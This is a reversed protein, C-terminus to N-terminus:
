LPSTMWPTYITFRELTYKQLPYLALYGILFFTSTAAQQRLSMGILLEYKQKGTVYIIDLIIQVFLLVLLTNM